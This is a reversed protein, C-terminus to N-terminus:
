LKDIEVEWIEDAFKFVINDVFQKKQKSGRLPKTCRIRADTKIQTDVRTDVFKNAM